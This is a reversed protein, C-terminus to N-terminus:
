SLYIIQVALKWRARADADQGRMHRCFAAVVAALIAASRYFRAARV